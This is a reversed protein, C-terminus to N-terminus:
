EQRELLSPIGTSHWVRKFQQPQTVRWTWLGGGILAASAVIGGFRQLRRRQFIENTLWNSTAKLNRVPTPLLQMYTAQRISHGVKGKIQVIDFLNAASEGLGLKLLTGRINVRAAVPRDGTVLAQLNRAIAEGQQYAVQATPPLSDATACDGGAFVEPFNPLQLTPTVQLKGQKDRHSIPLSQILPHTQTGATWVITAAQLSETRDGRKFKVQQPEVATIEAETLLEVAVTRQQLSTEATQRLSNNIDGKLIETGRNILVIRLQSINGELRAYWKPLLDALTAALEVGSPGAGLIAVTLLTQQATSAVQTARQLCDRLHRGLAIADEGSRFPLCNDKAGAIGLYGTTSGLALVLNQYTYRLGSILQVQQNHLDIAQVTDQIFVVGSRDPLLEEYRPCVLDINMESSLFEYLLPKFVFREHSDILIIRLPYNAKSLHLATFLGTFGGGLIVTPFSSEM